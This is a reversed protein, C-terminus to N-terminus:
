INDEISFVMIDTCLGTSSRCDGERLTKCGVDSILPLSLKLYSHLVYMNTELILIILVKAIFTDLM